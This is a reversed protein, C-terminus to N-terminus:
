KKGAAKTTANIAKSTAANAAKMNADALEAMQRAVANMGEFAKNTQDLMSKMAAAFVDGGVPASKSKDIAQSAGKKFQSYQAELVTTVDKQMSAILDYVSRSYEMAKEFNPAALQQNLSAMDNVDKASLLTNARNVSQDFFERTAAMNLEALRQMGEFSSRMLATVVEANAKQAATMQEFDPTSSM